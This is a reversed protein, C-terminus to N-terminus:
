GNVVRINAPMRSMRTMVVGPSSGRKALKSRPPPCHPREIRYASCAAGSPSACARTMPRLKILPSWTASTKPSIDEVAVSKGDHEPLRRRRARAGRDEGILHAVRFGIAHDFEAGIAGGDGDDFFRPLRARM